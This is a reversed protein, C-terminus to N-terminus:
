IKTIGYISLFLQSRLAALCCQARGGLIGVLHVRGQSLSGLGSCPVLEGQCILRSLNCSLHSVVLFPFLLFHDPILTSLTLCTSFDSSPCPQLRDAASRGASGSAQKEKARYGLLEGGWGDIGRGTSSAKGGEVSGLAGGSHSGRHPSGAVVGQGAGPQM